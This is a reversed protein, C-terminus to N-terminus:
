KLFQKVVLLPDRSHFIGNGGGWFGKEEVSTSCLGARIEGLGREDNGAEGIENETGPGLMFLGM